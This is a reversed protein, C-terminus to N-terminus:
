YIIDDFVELDGVAKKASRQRQFPTVVPAPTRTPTIVQQPEITGRSKYVKTPAPTVADVYSLRNIIAVYGQVGNDNGDPVVFLPFSGLAPHEVVYTGQRLAASGGKFYLSFCEAGSQARAPVLDTVGSLTVDVTSYGTNIRFISNVYSTFVAKNYNALADPAFEANQDFPNGDGGKWLGQGSAKLPIAAALAALTGAKLFKRRNTSM